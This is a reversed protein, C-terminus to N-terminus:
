DGTGTSERRLPPTSDDGNITLPADFRTAERGQADAERIVGTDDMYFSRRGSNPYAIPVGVVEFGAVDPYKPPSVQVKFRYGNRTGTAIEPNLLHEEALQEFTGYSEHRRQYTTEAVSIARLTRMASGENAVRRAALLNPIAIAAIIGVPVIIAVSLISTALGATALGKGGYESPTRKIKRLAVIGLTIGVPAGIGLFGMTFLNIIGIVLSCIALGKKLEGHAGMTHDRRADPEIHESGGVAPQLLSAGCKKCCEADAWSVFGCASCKVSKM